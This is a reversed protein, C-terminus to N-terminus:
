GSPLLLLLPLPTATQGGHTVMVAGVPCRARSCFEYSSSFSVATRSARAQLEDVNDNVTHGMAGEAIVRLHWAGDDDRWLMAMLLATKGECVAADELEAAAAAAAAAARRSLGPSPPPTPPPKRGFSSSERHLSTM